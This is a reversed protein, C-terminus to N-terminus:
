PVEILGLNRTAAFRQVSGTREPRHPMATAADVEPIDPAVDNRVLFANVGRPEVAVLRYGLRRGVNVVAPLSAGFYLSKFNRRNFKPDYPTALAEDIGYLENFEIVVIRASVRQISEWVWIDNGDIDISLLDIEGELGGDALLEDINERTVWAHRPVVREAHFRSRLMAVRKKDGDVMLGRWGLEQALFGSNGGNIGSGIEAFTAHEVGAARLLALVMGDEGNQSLGRFRQATLRQAPPLELDRLALQRQLGDVTAQLDAIKAPLGRRADLQRELLEEIRALRSRRRLAAPPTPLKRRVKM